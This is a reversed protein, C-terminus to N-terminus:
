DEENEASFNSQGASRYNAPTVGTHEKFIKIFYSINGYGVRQGTEAVTLRQKTLLEKAYEMRLFVIYDKYSKGSHKRVANRVSVITTNMERAVNEISLDYDKFHTTIYQFIRFSEEAFLREKQMELQRCFEHIMEEGIQVFQEVSGTSICLSIFKKPLEMHYEQYVSSVESYFGTFLYQQMLLSAEKKLMGAYDHLAEVAAAERGNSLASSIQYLCSSKLAAMADGPRPVDTERQVDDLAELYSAALCDLSEYVTGRGTRAKNGYSQSLDYIEECLERSQEQEPVSCLSVISKRDTNIVSYIYKKDAPDTCEDFLDRLKELIDLSVEEEFCVVVVFFCPGPFLLKAQTLYPQIQFAYKGELLLILLQNRLQNQKQELLTNVEANSRIISEMMFNIEDLANAFQAEEASKVYSRYKKTLRTVPRWTNWAFLSAIFLALIIVAVMLMLQLPLLGFSAYGDSSPLYYVSFTGTEGEYSLVNKRNIDLNEDGSQYLWDEGARLALSGELGGSVTKVREFLAERSIRVCFTANNGGSVAIRLPIFVFIMKATSFVRTGESNELLAMVTSKEAEELSALLLEPETLKENSCFIREQGQYYLFCDQLLPSYNVYKSFDELLVKEYYKNRQFYFPNYYDSVTIKLGVEEFLLLQKELDEVVLVLKEQAHLRERQKLSQLNFFLFIASVMICCFMALCLYSALWPNMYRLKEKKGM